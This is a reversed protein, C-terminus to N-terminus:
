DMLAAGFAELAEIAEPSANHLDDLLPFLHENLLSVNEQRLAEILADAERNAKLWASFDGRVIDRGDILRHIKRTNEIYTEQYPLM